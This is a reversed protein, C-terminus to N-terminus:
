KDIVKQKARNAKERAKRASAVLWSRPVLHLLFRFAHGHVTSTVVMRKKKFAKLSDAVVKDATSWMYKPTTQKYAALEPTDHFGTHTFGPLLCQIEVGTGAFELAIDESFRLLFEKTAGYMAGGPNPFFVTGSSVNIIAGKRRQKMTPLAAKCLRVPADMHVRMMGVTDKFNVDIFDGIPGFGADNVLVTIDGRKTIEEAVKDIDEVLSLDAVIVTARVIYSTELEKAFLELKEKRRAVLILNFGQAALQRAFEAGIGSSAGTVLATGPEDWGMFNTKGM